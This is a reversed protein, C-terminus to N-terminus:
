SIIEEMLKKISSFDNENKKYRSEMFYLVKIGHETCLKYKEDDRIKVKEYYEEGGWADIPRFHQIGQCEIAVNYDPLYFDLRLNLKYILWNFTKQREYHINNDLLAKSIREELKYTKCKPCGTKGDMINYLNTIFDGHKKCTIIVKNNDIRDYTDLKEFTFAEEGYKSVIKRIIEEKSLRKKIGNKKISCEYCGEGNMLNWYRMYKVGHEPCIVKIEGNENKESYKTESFDLKPHLTELEKVVDEDKKKRKNCYQCGIGNFFHLPRILFEGHEKCYIKIRGKNDRFNFDIKEIDYKSLDVNNKEAKKIFEDKTLIRGFRRKEKACLPCGKGQLHNHLTQTHIYNHRKCKYTIKGLKNKVDEVFSYDYKDGHVKKSMEIIEEKKYM